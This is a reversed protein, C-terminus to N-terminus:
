PSLLEAGLLLWAYVASVALAFGAAELALNLFYRM